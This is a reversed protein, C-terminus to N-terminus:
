SKLNTEMKGKCPTVVISMQTSTMEMKKLMGTGSGESCAEEQFKISVTAECEGMIEV